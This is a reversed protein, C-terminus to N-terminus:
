EKNFHNIIQNAAYEISSNNDIIIDAFDKYLNIRAKYIDYILNKDKLLPRGSLNSNKLINEPTTHIFVIIGSKKMISKNNEKVVVGGGTSILVSQMNSLEKIVVSEKQRFDEEGNIAFIQPITQSYKNELYEDADIHKLNLKESVIKGISSKGCGPMGILYINNM